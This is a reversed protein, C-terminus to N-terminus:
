HGASSHSQVAHQSLLRLSQSRQEKIRYPPHSEEWAVEARRKAIEMEGDSMWQQVSADLNKLQVEKNECKEAVWGWIKDARHAGIERAGANSRIIRRVHDRQVKMNTQTHTARSFVRHIEKHAKEKQSETGPTKTM